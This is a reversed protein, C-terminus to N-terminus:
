RGELWTRMDAMDRRGATLYRVDGMITVLHFGRALM